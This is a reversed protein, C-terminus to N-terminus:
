SGIPGHGLASNNLIRSIAEGYERWSRNDSDRIQQSLEYLAREVEWPELNLHDATDLVWSRVTDYAEFTEAVPTISDPNVGSTPSQDGAIRLGNAPAHVRRDFVFHHDPWLSALVATTTPVAAGPLGVSLASWTRPDDRRLTLEGADLPVSIRREVGTPLRKVSTLTAPRVRRGPQRKFNGIALVLHHGALLRDSDGTAAWFHGSLRLVDEWLGGDGWIAAWQRIRVADLGPIPGPGNSNKVPLM